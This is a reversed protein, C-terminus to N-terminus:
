ISPASPGAKFNRIVEDPSFCRDHIAMLYFAGPFARGENQQNGLYLHGGATWADPKWPTTTDTVIKVGDFYVTTAKGDWTIMTHHLSTLFGTAIVDPASPQFAVGGPAVVFVNSFNGFGLQPIPAQVGPQDTEWSFFTGAYGPTGYLTECSAWCEITCAKSQKIALLKDAALASKLPKSGGRVKIGQGPLWNCCTPDPTVTLDLAPAVRSRDHAVTSGKGEDFRYLVLAHSDDRKLAPNFVSLSLHFPQSQNAQDVATVTYWHKGSQEPTFSMKGAAVSVAAEDGTPVDAPAVKFAVPKGTTSWSDSLDLTLTKHQDAWEPYWPDAIVVRPDTRPQPAVTFDLRVRAVCIASDFTWVAPIGDPIPNPDTITLPYMEKDVRALFSITNGRKSLQLYYWSHHNTGWSRAAIPTHALVVGNRMLVAWGLPNGQDDPYGYIGTYGNRPDKGDSCLSVSYHGQRNYYVDTERPYDMKSGVYAEITHDGSFRNKQWLVADGRSWGALFSWDPTCSWRNSQEWTGQTQWDVPAGTFPFDLTHDSLLQLNGINAFADGDPQYGAHTGTLPQADTASVVTDGDVELWVKNDLRRFRLDYDTDPALPAMKVTALEKEGRYLSYIPLPPTGTIAVMARYGSTVSKGDGNLTMWLEGSTKAALTFTMTMWTHAGFLEQRYWRFNPVAADPVWESAQISWEKMGKPDIIFKHTIAQLKSEALLDFDLGSGYVTVDDFTTEESGEAYLGISGRWPAVSEKMIRERGDILVRLGALSSVVTINYWQGPVYGGAEAALETTKGNNLDITSLTLRNGDQKRSNAPTWRLLLGTKADTMNVLMGCAGNAAPDVAVSYTYDEWFPNGTTCIAAKGAESKGTWAFPNQGENTNPDLSIKQIYSMRVLSYAINDCVSKLAWTGSVTTWPSATEPARMFDDAFIVPEIRQIASEVVKWGADATVGAQTGDSRPAKCYGILVDDKTIGLLAGRRMFSLRTNKEPTTKAVFHSIVNRKGGKVTMVDLAAGSISIQTSPKGADWELVLHVAAKNSAKASLALTLNCDYNGTSPNSGFQGDITNAHALASSVLLVLLFFWYAWKGM